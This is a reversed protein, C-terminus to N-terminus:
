RPEFERMLRRFVEELSLRSTDVIVADPAPALPAIARTRDQHDRVRISEEIAALDADLGMGRLQEARREARIRPVADLFFKHRADPFVVSGMDRGEAVLSTRAGIARQAAKQFDRVEAAAALKSAWMGVQETRVENGVPVGDCFLASEQGTGKLSFTIGALKAALIPGPLDWAGEGLKLACARFMAGTDLYAIGLAQAVKRALTTKGVGAPGDLTVILPPSTGAPADAMRPLCKM